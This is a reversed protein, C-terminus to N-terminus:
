LFGSVQRGLSCEKRSGEAARQQDGQCVIESDAHMAAEVVAWLYRSFKSGILPM